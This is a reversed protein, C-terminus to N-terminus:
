NKLTLEHFNPSELNIEVSEWVKVMLVHFFGAAQCNLTTSDQEMPKTVAKTRRCGPLTLCTGM